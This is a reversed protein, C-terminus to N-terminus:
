WMLGRLSVLFFVLFLKMTLYAQAYLSNTKTVLVCLSLIFYSSFLFICMRLNLYVFISFYIFQIYLQAIYVCVCVCLSLCVCVCVSM